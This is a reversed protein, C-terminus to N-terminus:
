FVIEIDRKRVRNDKSGCFMNVNSQAQENGLNSAKLWDQCAEEKRKLEYKAEARYFFARALNKDNAEIVLDLDKIAEEYKKMGLKSLAVNFMGNELDPEKELAIQFDKMGAEYNKSEAKAAGRNYYAAANDPNREIEKTYYMIANKFRDLEANAFGMYYYIRPHDPNLELAKDFDNLAKKYQKVFIYAAGRNFYLEADKDNLEEAKDYLNIAPDFLDLKHRSDALGKVIEYNSPAIFYAKSYAKMAEVYSEEAYLKKGQEMYYLSSDQAFVGFSFLLIFLTLLKNKIM